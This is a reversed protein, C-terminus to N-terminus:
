ERWEMVHDGRANSVVMETVGDLGDPRRGGCVCKLKGAIWCSQEGLYLNRDDACLAGFLKKIGKKDTCSKYCGQCVHNM